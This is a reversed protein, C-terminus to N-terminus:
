FLFFPAAVAAASIAVVLVSLGAGGAKDLAGERARPPAAVHEPRAGSLGTREVAEREDPDLLDLISDQASLDGLREASVEPLVEQDDAHRRELGCAGAALVVTAVGAM